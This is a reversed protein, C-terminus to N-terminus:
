QVTPIVPYGPCAPRGAQAPPPIMPPGNPTPCGVQPPGPVRPLDYGSPASWNSQPPAVASSQQPQENQPMSTGIQGQSNPCVVIAGPANNINPSCNGNSRQDLNQASAFDLQGSATLILFTLMMRANSRHREGLCSNIGYITM